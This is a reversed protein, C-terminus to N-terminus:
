AVPRIPAPNRVYVVGRRYPPVRRWIRLEISAEASDTLCCLFLDAVHGVM